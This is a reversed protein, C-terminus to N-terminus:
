HITNPKWWEDSYNFPNTKKDIAKNFDIETEDETSIEKWKAKYVTLHLHAGYSNGINGVRGVVRGPMVTENVEACFENLHCLM